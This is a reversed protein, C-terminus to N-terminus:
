PNTKAKELYEKYLADRQQDFYLLVRKVGNVVARPTVTAGTFQDFDGGDKKVKWRDLKPDTLSKGTFGLIWDSKEKEVKDGLGPTEKHAVVRTGLLVGNGDVGVLLRIPGSYGDPVTAEFVMASLQKGKEGVYVLSSEQGLAERANVTLPHALIDNDVQQKPVIEYLQRLLAQRENELIREHTGFETVAVLTAGIFGFVGLILASVLINRSM